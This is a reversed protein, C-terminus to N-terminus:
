VGFMKEFRRAQKNIRLAEGQKNANFADRAIDRLVVIHDQMEGKLAPLMEDDVQWQGGNRPISQILAEVQEKTIGYDMQLDPENLLITLKHMVEQVDEKTLPFVYNEVFLQRLKIM